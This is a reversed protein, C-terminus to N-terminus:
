LEREKIAKLVKGVPPRGNAVKDQRANLLCFDLPKHHRELRGLIYISLSIGKAHRLAEEGVERSFALVSRM